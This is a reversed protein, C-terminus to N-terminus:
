KETFRVGSQTADIVVTLPGKNVTLNGPVLPVNSYFPMNYDDTPSDITFVISDNNIEALTVFEPFVVQVTERSPPGSYYIREASNILERGATKAQAEILDAEIDSSQAFFLTILPVLLLFSFGTVLLYEM